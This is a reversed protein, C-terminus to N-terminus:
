TRIRRLCAPTVLSKTWVENFGIPEEEDLMIIIAKQVTEVTIHSITFTSISTGERTANFITGGSPVGWDDMYAIITKLFGAYLAIAWKYEENEQDALGDLYHNSPKVSVKWGNLNATKQCVAEYANSYTNSNMSFVM